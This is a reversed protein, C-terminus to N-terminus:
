ASRTLTKELRRVLRHLAEQVDGALTAMQKQPDGRFLIMLILTDGSVAFLDILAHHERRYVERMIRKIRNREVARRARRGPAFGVQVPVNAQVDSRPVVRYLLRIGGYATSGVDARGREFLSRILRRQKLSYTKPFTHRRPPM